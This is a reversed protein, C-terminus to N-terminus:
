GHLISCYGTGIDIVIVGEIEIEKGSHAGDVTIIRDFSNHILDCVLLKM